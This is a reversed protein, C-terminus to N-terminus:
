ILPKATFLTSLKNQYWAVRQNFEDDESRLKEIHDRGYLVTSHDKNGMYRGIQPLSRDTCKTALYCVLHRALVIDAKRQRGILHQYLIREHECVMRIIYEIQSVPPKAEAKAKNEIRSLRREIAELARWIAVSPDPKPAAKAVIDHDEIHSGYGNTLRKRVEDYHGVLTM